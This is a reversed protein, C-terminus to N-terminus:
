ESVEKPPEPLYQWHTVYEDVCEAEDWFHPSKAFMPTGYKYARVDGFITYCLVYEFDHTNPNIKENPLRDKVSVWQQQEKLLALADQILRDCIVSSEGGYNCADCDICLPHNICYKISNIVKEKDSMGM